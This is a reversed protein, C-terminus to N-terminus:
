FDRSRTAARQSLDSRASGPTTKAKWIGGRTLIGFLLQQMGSIYVKYTGDEEEVRVIQTAVFVRTKPEKKSENKMVGGQNTPPMDRFVSRQAM